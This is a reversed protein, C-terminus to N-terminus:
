HSLSCRLLFTHSVLDDDVDVEYEQRSKLVSRRLSSSRQTHTVVDDVGFKIGTRYYDPRARYIDGQAWLWAQKRCGSIVTYLSYAGVFVLLILDGKLHLYVVWTYTYIHCIHGQYEVIIYISQLHAQTGFCSTETMANLLYPGFLVYLCM